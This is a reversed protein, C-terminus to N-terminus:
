LYNYTSLESKATAFTSFKENLKDLLVNKIWHESEYHGTELILIHNEYDIFDHYHVEGVIFADAKQEMADPLLFGGAGGCFAIKRIPRHLHKSHRLVKLQLREKVAQLFIDEDMPETFHGVGGAGAQTFTGSPRLIKWQEVGIREALAANVGDMVSDLNTHMSYIVLDHRIAQIVLHESLTQGSVRKLPHFLLPHHSIIFNAGTALAEEVIEARVDLCILGGKFPQNPDGAQLGANDYPEQLPLPVWDELFDIIESITVM